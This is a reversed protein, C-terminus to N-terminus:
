REVLCRTNYLATDKKMKNQISARVHVVDGGTAVQQTSAQRQSELKTKNVLSCIM